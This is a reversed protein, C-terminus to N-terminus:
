DNGRKNKILKKEKEKSMEGYKKNDTVLDEEEM